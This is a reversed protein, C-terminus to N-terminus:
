LLYCMHILHHIRTCSGQVALKVFEGAIFPLFLKMLFLAIEQVEHFHMCLSAYAAGHVQPLLDVWPDHAELITPRTASPSVGNLPYVM